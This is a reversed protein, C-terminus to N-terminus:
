RQLREKLLKRARHLQAKSTGTALGMMEAIENHQYGEIDHLVFIARAQPPLSAIADELDIGTSPPTTHEISDYFDLDDTSEVRATRRRQTRLDLLVVNVAIRHLWSSFASEGRFSGLMEWARIFAVQTLEEARETNSLIRLCVAYVRGVHQRYLIEFAGKDGAQARSVIDQDDTTIASHPELM